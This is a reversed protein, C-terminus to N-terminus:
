ETSQYIITAKNGYGGTEQRSFTSLSNKYTYRGKTGALWDTMLDTQTDIQGDTWKYCM